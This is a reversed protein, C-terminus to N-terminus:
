FDEPWTESLCQAASGGNYGLVFADVRQQRSGHPDGSYNFPLDSGANWRIQIAEQFDTDQLQGAQGSYAFHGIVGAMCDASLEAWTASTATTMNQLGLMAQVHHGMEHGMVVVLAFDYNNPNVEQGRRILNPIGIYITGSSFTTGFGQGGKPCYFAGSDPGATVATGAETCASPQGPEGESVLVYNVHTYPVNAASFSRYWFDNLLFITDALYNIWTDTRQGGDFSEPEAIEIDTPFPGVIGAAENIVRRVCDDTIEPCAAPALSPQVCAQEGACSPDTSGAVGTPSGSPTPSASFTPSATAIPPSLTSTPTAGPACAILVLSLMITASKM